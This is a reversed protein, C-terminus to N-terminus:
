AAREADAKGREQERLWEDYDFGLEEISRVHHRAEGRDQFAKKILAFKERAWIERAGWRPARKGKRVSKAGNSSGDGDEKGEEDAADCWEAM